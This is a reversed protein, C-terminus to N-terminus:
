EEESSVSDPKVEKGKEDKVIFRDTSNPEGVLLRENYQRAKEMAREKLSTEGATVIQLGTGDVAVRWITYKM